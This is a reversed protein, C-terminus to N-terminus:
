IICSHTDMFLKVYWPRSAVRAPGAKLLQVTAHYEQNLENLVSQEYKESESLQEQEKLETEKLEKHLRELEEEQCNVTDRLKDM